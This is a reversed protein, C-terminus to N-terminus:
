IAEGVLEVHFFELGGLFVGRRFDSLGVGEDRNVFGSIQVEADTSIMRVLRGSEDDAGFSESSGRRHQLGHKISAEGLGDARLPTVVVPYDVERVILWFGQSDEEVDDVAVKVFDRPFRIYAADVVKQHDQVLVVTNGKDLRPSRRPHSKDLVGAVNCKQEADCQIQPSSIEKAGRKGLDDIM